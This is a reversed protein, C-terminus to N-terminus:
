REWYPILVDEVNELTQCLNTIKDLANDAYEKLLVKARDEVRADFEETNYKKRMSEEVRCFLDQLTKEFSEAPIEIGNIFVTATLKGREKWDESEAVSDVVNSDNLLFHNLIQNPNGVDIKM